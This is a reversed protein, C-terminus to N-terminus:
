LQALAWIKSWHIRDQDFLNLEHMKAKDNFRNKILDTNRLWKKFPFQFGMKPRNYIEVPLINGFANILVEKKGPSPFLKDEEINNILHLFENDLFPVRIEIGHQMSMYDSDKLLQNQMYMEREMVSVDKLTNLKRATSPSHTNLKEIVEDKSVSLISAIKSPTYFGRLLLYDSVHDDLKLFDLRQFNGPLLGSFKTIISKYQHVKKLHTLRTFSPYGGFLEDAGLGSLVAKLKNEKAFKSIFWSNVGDNSPSDYADLVNKINELFDKETLLISHHDSNIKKAILDQFKKESYEDENFYVSLTHLQATHKAALLAIISSDIGGSLFVGIPADSILHRNVSAQLENEIDSKSISQLVRASKFSYRKITYSADKLNFTLFSSKPLAFVGKFKTYPEPLHGYALLLTKWFDNEEEIFSKFVKTESAFILQNDAQYYYLPKIGNPDRVLYLHQNANDLLAFAFMGNFKSFTDTGWEEFAHLIIETDSNTYFHHSKSELEKKIESFNYIEGNYSIIYNKYQMPQAAAASLDLLSLRCHGLAITKECFLGRGDPGGHIMKDIMLQVDDRLQDHYRIPDVIGAIRCM